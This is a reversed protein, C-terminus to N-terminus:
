ATLAILARRSAVYPERERARSRVRRACRYTLLDVHLVATGAGTVAVPVQFRLEGDRRASRM